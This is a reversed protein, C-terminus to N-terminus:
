IKRKLSWYFPKYCIIDAYDLNPRILSKYITLSIKRSRFLFLKKIVGIIKNCKNTKNDIHDNFDLKSDLILVQHNQTYSSQVIVNNFLLPPQIIKNRKNSFCVETAQKFPEPSCFMKWQFTWKSILDLDNDLELNSQKDKVQFFHYTMQLFKAHQCQEM